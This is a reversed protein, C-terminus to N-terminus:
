PNIKKLSDALEANVMYMVHFKQQSLRDTMRMVDHMICENTTNDPVVWFYGVLIVFRPSLCYVEFIIFHM